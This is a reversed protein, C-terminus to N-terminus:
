TGELGSDLLKVVFMKLALLSDISYGKSSWFQKLSSIKM